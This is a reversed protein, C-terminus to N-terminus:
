RTPNEDGAARIIQRTTYNGDLEDARVVRIRNEINRVGSVSDAIDEAHRRAERSLVMGSLIVESGAVDVEIESADLMDDDSLRDCVDEKIREDSRQYGKPGKGRHEGKIPYNRNGIPIRNEKNERMWSSGGQRDKDWWGSDQKDQITDNWSNAGSTGYNVGHRTNSSNGFENGRNQRWRDDNRRGQQESTAGYQNNWQQQQNYNNYEQRNEDNYPIYNIRRQNVRGFDEREDDSRYGANGFSGQNESYQENRNRNMQQGQRDRSDDYPRNDQNSNNHAM